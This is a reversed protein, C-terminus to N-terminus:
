VHSAGISKCLLSERWEDNPQPSLPSEPESSSPIANPRLVLGYSLYELLLTGSSVVVPARARHCLVPLSPPAKIEFALLDGLSGNDAVSSSTLSHTQLPSCLTPHYRRSSNCGYLSSVQGRGTLKEDNPTLKDSEPLRFHRMNSELPHTLNDNFECWPSGVKHISLALTSESHHHNALQFFNLSALEMQNGALPEPLKFERSKCKVPESWTRNGHFMRLVMSLVVQAFFEDRLGFRAM